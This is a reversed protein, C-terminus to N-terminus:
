QKSIIQASKKAPALRSFSLGPTSKCDAKRNKLNREPRRERLMVRASMVETLLDALPLSEFQDHLKRQGLKLFIIVISCRTSASSPAASRSLRAAFSGGDEISFTM